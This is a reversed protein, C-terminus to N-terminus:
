VILDIGEIQYGYVGFKCTWSETQRENTNEESIGWYNADFIEILAEFVPVQIIFLFM